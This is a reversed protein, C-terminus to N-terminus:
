EGDDSIPGCEYLGTEKTSSQWGYSVEYTLVPKQVSGKKTTVLVVGNAGRTGYIAASAADKLVEVSEIDSPSLIISTM